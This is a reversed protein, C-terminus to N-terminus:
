WAGPRIEARLYAPSIGCDSNGRFQQIRWDRLEGQQFWKIERHRDGTKGAKTTRWRSWVQGDYSFRTMVVPDTGEASHGRIGHLELESVVGNKGENFIVPTSFEWNVNQGYIQATDYTLFGIELGEPNGCTWRGGAYLLVRGPYKTFGEGPELVVWIPQQMVESAREDYVLTQDSLHVYLLKHNRDARDEVWVSSIDADANILEDIERTSIKQSVGNRGIWIALSEDRRNGVFAVKGDFDVSGKRGVSGRTIVSSDVRKIPVGTGGVVRFTEISYQNVAYLENRIAHLAVIPDPDFESSAYKLPNITTPDGPNTSWISEGDALFWFGSLYAVTFVDEILPDVVQTLTTGDYLYFAGTVCIGLYNFDYALTAPSNLDGNSIFGIDDITGDARIRILRDGRVRYAEGRWVIGGREFGPTKNTEQIGEAPRLYGNSMGQAKPVVMMNRPYATRFDGKADTYIGNVIQVQM